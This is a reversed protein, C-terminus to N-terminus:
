REHHSTAIGDMSPHSVTNGATKVNLWGCSLGHRRAAIERRCREPRQSLNFLTKLRLNRNVDLNPSFSPSNVSRKGVFIVPNTSLRIGAAEPM